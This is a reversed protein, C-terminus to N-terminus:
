FESTYIYNKISASSTLCDTEGGIIEILKHKMPDAWKIWITVDISVSISM